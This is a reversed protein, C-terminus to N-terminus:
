EGGEEMASIIWSQKLKEMLDVSEIGGLWKLM